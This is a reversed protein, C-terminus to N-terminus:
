HLSRLYVREIVRDCCNEPVPARGHLMRWNDIIITDGPHWLLAKIRPAAKLMDRFLEVGSEGAATAPRIYKEDWRILHTGGEMPQLLRLLPRRGNIPRRPQVLTRVLVTLGIRAALPAVDVVVTPVEAFGKICRLLLYRPPLHWQAFDTHLPFRGLGYNGSYTNLPAEEKRLPRLEHVPREKGLVLPDGILPLLEASPVASHFSEIYVYGSSHVRSSLESVGADEM